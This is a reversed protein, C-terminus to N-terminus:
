HNISDDYTPLSDDYIPVIPTHGEPVDPRVQSLLACVDSANNYLMQAACALLEKPNNGIVECTDYLFGYLRDVVMSEEAARQTAFVEANAGRYRVSTYTVMPYISSTNLKTM